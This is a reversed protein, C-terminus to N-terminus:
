QDRENRRDCQHREHDDGSFLPVELCPKGRLVHGVSCRDTTPELPPRRGYSSIRDLDYELGMGDGLVVFAADGSAPMVTAQGAPSAHKRLLEPFASAVVLNSGHERRIEPARDLGGFNSEASAWDGNEVVPAQPFAVIALLIASRSVFEIAGSPLIEIM